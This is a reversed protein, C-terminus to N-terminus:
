LKHFPLATQMTRQNCTRLPRTQDRTRSARSEGGHSIFQLFNLFNQAADLAQEQTVKGKLYPDIADAHIQKFTPGMVMFTLFMALGVLLQNPPMTNTGLAQRVFSLIVIIRTFSTMMILIAPALTLVTLLILIQLVGVVETPQAATKLGLQINPLAMQAHVTTASLFAAVVTFIKFLKNM